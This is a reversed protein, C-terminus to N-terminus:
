ESYVQCLVAMSIYSLLSLSGDDFYPGWAHIRRSTIKRNGAKGSVRVMVARADTGVLMSQIWGSVTGGLRMYRKFTLCRTPGQLVRYSYYLCSNRRHPPPADFGKVGMDDGELWPIPLRYEKPIASLILGLTRVLPIQHGLSWKLLLNYAIFLDSVSDLAKIYVGRVDDGHYYDGGCSERFNGTSFSKDKNVVFGCSELLRVTEVYRHNVVIIDDGFVSFPIRNKDDRTAFAAICSFVFTQLPFTFGNGMTSVMHLPIWEGNVQTEPSRLEMILAFLIPPMIAELLTLSIMDSASKLDITAYTGDLSGLRALDRNKSPQTSLDIKFFSRLYGEIISGCALQAEMNRLPETCILRSTKNNKPVCTTKSGRCRSVGYTAQRYNEAFFATPSITRAMTTTALVYNSTYTHQSLYEKGPHSTHITGVSAGPGHRMKRHLFEDDFNFQSGTWCLEDFKKQMYVLLEPDITQVSYERCKENCALFTDIAKQDLASVLEPDTPRFKALLTRNLVRSAYNDPFAALDLSASSALASPHLDM